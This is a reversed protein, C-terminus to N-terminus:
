QVFSHAENCVTCAFIELSAPDDPDFKEVRMVQVSDCLRCFKKIDDTAPIVDTLKLGCNSCYKDGPIPQNGCEKCKQIDMAAIHAKYAGGKNEHEKDVKM